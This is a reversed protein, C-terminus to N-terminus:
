KGADREMRERCAQIIWGQLSEGAALAAARIEAGMEKQPRINIVDCKANYRANSQKKKESVPM